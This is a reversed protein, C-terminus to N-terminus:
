SRAWEVMVIRKNGVCLGWWGFRGTDTLTLAKETVTYYEGDLMTMLIRDDTKRNANM